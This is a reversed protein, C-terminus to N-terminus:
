QGYQQPWGYPNGAQPVPATYQSPQGYQQFNAPPRPAMPNAAPMGYQNAAPFQPAMAQQRPVNMGGWMQNMGGMQPQQQQQQMGGSSGGANGFPPGGEAALKCFTTRGDIQKTPEVLAAQASQPDEFTVFGFGKSQGTSKNELVVAEKIPGYIAFARALSESTTNYDLQRVFLKTTLTSEDGPRTTHTHSPASAQPPVVPAAGGFANMRVTGTGSMGSMGSTPQATPPPADPGRKAALNVYATRGDIDISGPACAAAAADATEFTVFGFGKSQNSQRNKIVIAESITGFASFVRHLAADDTDFSLNRVFVKKLKPDKDNEDQIASLVAPVRSGLSALTNLLQEQTWLSLMSTVDAQTPM